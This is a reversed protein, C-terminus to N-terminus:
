IGDDSDNLLDLGDLVETESGSADEVVEELPQSMIAGPIVIGSAIAGIIPKPPVYTKIDNKQIEIASELEELRKLM